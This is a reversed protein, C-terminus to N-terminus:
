PKTSKQWRQPPAPPSGRLTTARFLAASLLLSLDAPSPNWRMARRRHFRGLSRRLRLTLLLLPSRLLLRRAALSAIKVVAAAM